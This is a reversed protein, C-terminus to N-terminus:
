LIYKEDRTSTSTIMLKAKQRFGSVARCARARRPLCVYMFVHNNAGALAVCSIYLITMVGPSDSTGSSKFYM